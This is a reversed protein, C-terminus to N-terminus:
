SMRRFPFNVLQTSTRRLCCYGQKNKLINYKYDISHCLIECYLPRIPMKLLTYVYIVCSGEGRTFADPKDPTSHM